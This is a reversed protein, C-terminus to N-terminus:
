STDPPPSPLPTHDDPDPRRATSAAVISSIAAWAVIVGAAALTPGPGFAPIRDLRLVLIPGAVTGLGVSWVPPRVVFRPLFGTALFAGICPAALLLSVRITFEIPQLIRDAQFGAVAAAIATTFTSGAAGLLVGTVPGTRRRRLPRSRTHRGSPKPDEGEPHDARPHDPDADPHHRGRHTDPAAPPTPTRTPDRRFSDRRFPDRPFPDRTPDPTPDPDPFTPPRQDPHDAAPHTTPDGGRHRRSSTPRHPWSAATM